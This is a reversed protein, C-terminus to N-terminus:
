FDLFHVLQHCSVMPRVHLFMMAIVNAVLQLYDDDHEHYANGEQNSICETISLEFFARHRFVNM